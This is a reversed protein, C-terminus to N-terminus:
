ENAIRMGINVFSHVPFPIISSGQSERDTVSWEDELDWIHSQCHTGIREHTSGDFEATLLGVDNEPEGM